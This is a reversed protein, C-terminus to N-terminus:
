RWRWRRKKPAPAIGHTLTTLGGAAGFMPRLEAFLADGAELRQRRNVMEIFAGERRMVAATAAATLGAQWKWKEPYFYYYFLYTVATMVTLGRSDYAWLDVGGHGAMEAMLVLAGTAAVQRRYGQAADLADVIGRFFGDPHIGTAVAERYVAGAAQFDDASEFVIGAGMDLAARWLVALWDDASSGLRQRQAQWAGRWVGQRADAAPQGCLMELVSLWGLLRRCQTSHPAGPMAFDAPEVREILAADADSVEGLLRWRLALRQAAALRDDSPEALQGLAGRIPEQARNELALRLHASTCFLGCRGAEDNM